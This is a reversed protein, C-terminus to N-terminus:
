MDKYKNYIHQLKMVDQKEGRSKADNIAVELDSLNLIWGYKNGVEKEVDKKIRTYLTDDM